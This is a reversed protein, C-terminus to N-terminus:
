LRTEPVVLVDGPQLLLNQQMDGKNILRDLKLKMDITKGDVQRVLKARNGAAYDTLGGAALVLDLVRMGARYPVAQPNEVQGVAKVQTLLGAPQTVIVNVQPTRVFEALVKEIDRALMSPSKGVAVMDEVLPASIRGDPRVPMSVTLEPNRWVYIQLTDGPGIIYDAGVVSSAPNSPSAPAPTAAPTAARAAPEQALLTASAFLGFCIMLASRVWVRNLVKM